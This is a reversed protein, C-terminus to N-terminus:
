PQVAGGPKYVEDVLMLEAIRVNPTRDVIERFMHVDTANAKHLVDKSSSWRPIPSKARPTQLSIYYDFDVDPNALVM